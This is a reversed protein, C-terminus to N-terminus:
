CSRDQAELICEALMFDYIDDIDVAREKPVQIGCVPNEFLNNSSLIVSPRAAYIVTTLDFTEPAYQRGVVNNKPRKVLTLYEDNDREVMNFYPSRQAPTIAVCICRNNQKVQEIATSIDCVARLPSTVPLSVFLDFEGERQNVVEIAHQWAQWEASDDQALVQPREIIELGLKIGADAIAKDDTSLFIKEFCDAARAGEVARQLLSKGKLVKLNKGPLGKSGGRAFIFAFNKM